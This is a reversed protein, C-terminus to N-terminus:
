SAEGDRPEPRGLEKVAHIVRLWVNAGELDGNDLLEDQRVAADVVAAEEDGDHQDLLLRATRYIDLDLTDCSLCM